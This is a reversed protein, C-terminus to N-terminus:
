VETQRLAVNWAIWRKQYDAMGAFPALPPSLEIPHTTHAHMSRRAFSPRADVALPEAPWQPSAPIVTQEPHFRRVGLRELFDYIAWQGALLSGGRLTVTHGRACRVEDITYEEGALPTTARAGSGDHEHGLVVVRLALDRCGLAPLSARQVPQGTLVALDHVLDEVADCAGSALHGPAYVVVEPVVNDGCGALLGVVVLLWRM